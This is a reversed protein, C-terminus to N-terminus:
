RRWSVRLCLLSQPTLKVHLLHAASCSLKVAERKQKQEELNVIAFGRDRLRGTAEDANAADITGEMKRGSPDRMTYSFSMSDAVDIEGIREEEGAFVTLDIM